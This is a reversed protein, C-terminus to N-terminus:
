KTYDGHPMSAVYEWGVIEREIKIMEMTVRAGFKDGPVDSEWFARFARLASKAVSKEILELTRPQPISVVHGNCNAFCRRARIVRIDLYVRSPQKVGGFRPIESDSM